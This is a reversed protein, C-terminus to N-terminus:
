TIEREQRPTTTQRGSTGPRDTLDRSGNYAISGTWDIVARFPRSEQPNTETRPLIAGLKALPYM